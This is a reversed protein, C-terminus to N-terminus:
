RGEFRAPRQERFAALGEAKDATTSLMAQIMREEFLFSELDLEFSRNLLQKTYAIATTPMAVLERAVADAASVLDEDPVVRSVMRLSHAEDADITQGLLLFERARSYGIIRPLLRAAAGDPVLSRQIFAGVFRAGEAAICLDAGLALTLGIGACAGHV